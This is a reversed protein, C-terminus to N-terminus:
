TVNIFYCLNFSYILVCKGFAIHSMIIHVIFAGYACKAKTKNKKEKKKSHFMKRLEFRKKVSGARVPHPRYKFIKEEEIKKDSLSFSWLCINANHVSSSAIWIWIWIYIDYEAWNKWIGGYTETRPPLKKLVKTYCFHMVCFPFRVLHRVSSHHEGFSKRENLAKQTVCFACLSITILVNSHTRRAWIYHFHNKNGNKWGLNRLRNDYKIKHLMEMENESIIRMWRQVIFPMRPYYFEHLQARARKSSNKLWSQISKSKSKM